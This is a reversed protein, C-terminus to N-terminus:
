GASKFIAIAASWPRPNDLTTGTEEFETLNGIKETGHLRLSPALVLNNVSGHGNTLPGQQTPANRNSLGAVALGKPKVPGAAGTTLATRRETDGNSATKELVDAPATGAYERLDLVLAGPSTFTESTRGGVGDLLFWIEVRTGAVASVASVWGPPASIANGPEPSAVVAVLLSGPATAPSWSATVSGTGTGSRSQIRRIPPPDGPATGFSECGTFSLVLVVLLALVPIVLVLWGSM